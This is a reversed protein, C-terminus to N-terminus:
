RSAPGDGYNREESLEVELRELRWGARAIRGVLISQLAGDPAREDTLAAELARFEVADEQPLVVHKVARMGHKLANRSSGTKGEPTRPGRSKAGNRRSAEVRAGSTSIAARPAVGISSM